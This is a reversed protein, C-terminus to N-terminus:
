EGTKQLAVQVAGALGSRGHQVFAVHRGSQYWLRAVMAQPPRLQALTDHHNCVTLKILGPELSGITRNPVLTTEWGSLMGRRRSKVRPTTPVAANPIVNSSADACVTSARWQCPVTAMVRWGSCRTAPVVASHRLRHLLTPMAGGSTNSGPRMFATPM